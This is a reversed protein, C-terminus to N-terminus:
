VAQGKREFPFIKATTSSHLIRNALSPLTLGLKLRDIKINHYFQITKNMAMLIPVVDKDNYCKLFDHFTEM